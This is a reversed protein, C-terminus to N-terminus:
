PYTFKIESELVIDEYGNKNIVTYRLNEPVFRVSLVQKTGPISYQYNDEIIKKVLHPDNRNNNYGPSNYNPSYIIAVKDNKDYVRDNRVFYKNRKHVFIHKM